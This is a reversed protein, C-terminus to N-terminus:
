FLLNRVSLKQKIDNQYFNLYPNNVEKNTQINSFKEKKVSIKKRLFLLIIILIILYIM